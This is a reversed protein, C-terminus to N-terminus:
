GTCPPAERIKIRAPNASKPLVSTGRQVAWRILIQAASKDLKRSLENLFPDQMLKPLKRKALSKNDPAGGLPSYATM